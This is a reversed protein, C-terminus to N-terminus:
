HNIIGDCDDSNSMMMCSWICKRCLTEKDGIMADHVRDFVETKNGYEDFLQDARFKPTFRGRIRLCLRCASDSDVTLNTMGKELKCDMNNPLYKFIRPVLFDKMHIKLTDDKMIKDFVDMVEKTPHVLNIPNTINSFDYYNNAALDIMTIDSTIGDETLKKITDYLHHITNCDCTIEAVPDKVLGKEMLEKLTAYGTHSKYIEDDSIEDRSGFTKLYFGPDVSATFGCVSDVREFFKYINQKIGANCSSIITYPFEIKNLHNVVEALFEWRVFVEGGYLIAFCEPNHKHLRDLFEIWWEASMENKSNQYYSADPYDTPKLPTNINGSIQCYSCQLNCRRTMLCNIINIKDSM